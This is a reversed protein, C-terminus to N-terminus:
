SMKLFTEDSVIKDIRGDNKQKFECRRCFWDGEPVNFIGYCGQHVAVDCGDCYVLLNNSFGTDDACVCCGGVMAKLEDENDNANAHQQKKTSNEDSPKVEKKRSAKPSPTNAQQSQKLKEKNIKNPVM